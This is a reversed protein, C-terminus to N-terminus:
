KLAKANTYHIAVTIKTQLGGDTSRALETVADPLAKAIAGRVKFKDFAIKNYSGERNTPSNVDGIAALAPVTQSICSTRRGHASTRPTRSM